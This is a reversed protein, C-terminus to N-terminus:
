WKKYDYNLGEWPSVQERTGRFYIQKNWKEGFIPFTKKDERNGLKTKTGRLIKGKNGQVLYGKEGTGWLGQSPRM